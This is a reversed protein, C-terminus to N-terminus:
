HTIVAERPQTPRIPYSLDSFIYGFFLIVVLSFSCIAERNRRCMSSFPLWFRAALLKSPTLLAVTLLITVPNHSPM